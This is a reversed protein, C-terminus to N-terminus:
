DGDIDRGRLGMLEDFGKQKMFLLMKKVWRRVNYKNASNPLTHCKIEGSVVESIMYDKNNRNKELSKSRIVLKERRVNVSENYRYSFVFTGIILVITVISVIAFYIIESTTM